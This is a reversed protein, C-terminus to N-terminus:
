FTSVSQKRFVNADTTDTQEVKMWDCSVCSFAEGQGRSPGPPENGTESTRRSQRRETLPQCDAAPHRREMRRALRTARTATVGHRKEQAPRWGREGQSMKAGARASRGGNENTQRRQPTTPSPMQGGAGDQGCRHPVKSRGLIPRRPPARPAGHVHFTRDPAAATNHRPRSKSLINEVPRAPKGNGAGGTPTKITESLQSQLNVEHLYFRRERKHDKPSCIRKDM